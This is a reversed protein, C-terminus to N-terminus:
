RTAVRRAGRRARQEALLALNADNDVYVPLGLRESMLDRFPVDDLPLHNSWLSVARDRDVLSPIGFGVAEVDPAM